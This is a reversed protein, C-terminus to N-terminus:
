GAQPPAQKKHLREARELDKKGGCSGHLEIARKLHTIAQELSAAASAADADPRESAALLGRGIALHLKARVEDPMDEGATLEAAALLVDQPFDESARLEALAAEAIEEAVLCGTTRAFRDPMPLKYALVYRAINLAHDYRGIDLNWVLMETLLADEAGQGSDLV